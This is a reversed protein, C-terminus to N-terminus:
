DDDFIEALYEAIQRDHFILNADRNTAVGENSWNHSGVMAAKKRVLDTDRRAAGAPTPANV